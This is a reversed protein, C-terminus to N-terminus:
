FCEPVDEHIECAAFERPLVDVRVVFVLLIFFYFVHFHLECEFLDALVEGRLEHEVELVDLLECEFFRGVVGEELFEEGFDSGIFFEIVMLDCCEIPFRQGIVSLTLLIIGGCCGICELLCRLRGCILVSWRDDSCELIVRLLSLQFLRIM